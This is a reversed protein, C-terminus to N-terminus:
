LTGHGAQELLRPWFSDPPELLGAAALRAELRRVVDRQADEGVTASVEANYAHWASVGEHFAALTASVFVPRASGARNYWVGSAGVRFQGGSGDERAIVGDRPLSLFEIHM